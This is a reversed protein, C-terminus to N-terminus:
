RPGCHAMLAGRNARPLVSVVCALVLLRGRVRKAQRSGSSQQKKLAAEARRDREPQLFAALRRVAEGTSRVGGGAGGAEGSRL